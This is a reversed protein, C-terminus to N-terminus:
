QARYVVLLRAPDEPRGDVYCTCLVVYRGDPSLEEGYLKEETIAALARGMDFPAAETRDIGFVAESYGDVVAVAALQLEEVGDGTYLRATAKNRGFDESVFRKLDSFMVGRAGVNHGYILLYPDSLENRSDLMVSGTVAENGLYDYFLYKYLFHQLDGTPAVGAEPHGAYYAHAAPDQLLPYDIGTGDVKFWGIIDPNIEQLADLDLRHAERILEAVAEGDTVPMAPLVTTAAALPEGTPRLAEVEPTFSARGHHIETGVRLLMYSSYGILVLAFLRVLVRMRNNM